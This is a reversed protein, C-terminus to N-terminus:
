FIGTNNLAIMQSSQLFIWRSKLVMEVQNRTPSNLRPKGSPKESSVANEADKPVNFLTLQEIM